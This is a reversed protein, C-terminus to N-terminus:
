FRGSLALGAATRSVVPAVAVPPEARPAGAFWLAVAAIMAGAGAGLGIDAYVATRHGRDLTAQAAAASGCPTAPDPCMHFADRELAKAQSGLVAGITLGAIGAVAAGLALKRPMTWRSHPPEIPPAAVVIPVPAPVPVAAPLPLAADRLRPVRITIAGGAEPVTVPMRWEVHGPARAAIVLDGGDVPVARNWLGPDVPNASRSIVLGDVRIDGAVEITLHSLRPELQAIRASAIDRKRPDKARALADKYAAWASALQHNAERCEGLRILTGARPEIRRSADFADCAEVIKAEAMLRNGQEFLAEAEASQARATGPGSLIALALAADIAAIWARPAPPRLHQM